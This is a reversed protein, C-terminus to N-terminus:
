YNSAEYNSKRLKRNLNVSFVVLYYDKSKFDSGVYGLIQVSRVLRQHVIAYDILNAM